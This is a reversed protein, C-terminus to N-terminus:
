SKKDAKPDEGTLEVVAEHPSMFVEGPSLHSLFRSRELMDMLPGKVAALHILVGADRYALILQELTELASADILSVTDMVLVVHKVDPREAIEALMRDELYAANAFFLNDDIRILLLDDYTRTKRRKISRFNESNGVRGLVPMRPQSSRYLYMGISLTIGLLIGVEVGSALVAIFTVFFALGDPKYYKWASVLPSFDILTTVAVIIIVALTAKPIYYLLPTFFILVIAILLATFMASLQTNAGSTFNVVSRSFSGTVPYGGSMAAGFNAAGLGILEQNPDVKQRKRTALSKAVSLSEVLGVVSILIAAPLLQKWLDYDWAPPSIAPFGPPIYGVIAVGATKHIDFIWAYSASIIVLLLAMGKPLAMSIGESFGMERLRHRFQARSIMIVVGLLSLLLTTPNVKDLNAYITHLLEWLSHTPPLTLGLMHKLQSFSIIIAAATTFGAIVPHGIFNTLFGLRLLGAGILVLSSLMALIIALGLYEASGVPALPALTHAVMLSVIAVPGVGLVRSSGFIAYLFLPIVATYLGIQPPLGALMAYAMSQPMLMIAVVMGALLDGSLQERQYNRGWRYVPLYADVLDGRKRWAQRLRVRIRREGFERTVPHIKGGLTSHSFRRTINNLSSQQRGRWIVKSLPRLHKRISKLEPM